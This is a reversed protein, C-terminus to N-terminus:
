GAAAPADESQAASLPLWVTFRSGRDPGDSEARVRGGHQEVLQRVLALGIGLGGHWRNMRADEQRFMEFLDPLFEPALGQGTDEVVLQAENGQRELRVTVRGGEPTFKVANQLLNWVIQQVRVADAEVLLPEATREVHLEIRKLAAESRVTEAAEDLLPVLQVLQRFMTLKGTQLRSLDLLDSILRAQTLANRRIIEAAKGVVPLRQAEPDRSLIETYGVIVNLPSRLEHSLTALFEDKLRSARSLEEVLAATDLTAALQNAIVEATRVVAEDACRNAERWSLAVIGLLRGRARLPVALLSRIGTLSWLSSLEKWAEDSQMDPVAVPIMMRAARAVPHDSIIEVRLLLEQMRRDVDNRPTRRMGYTGRAVLAPLGPLSEDLLWYVGRPAGTVHCLIEILGDHSPAEGDLSLLAASAEQLRVLAENRKEADLRAVRESVESEYLSEM